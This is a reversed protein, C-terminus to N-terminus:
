KTRKKRKGGYLKAQDEHLGIAYKTATEPTTFKGLHEGTKRYHQIAERARVVRKGVVTPVLIEKGDENFSMSRVTSISGDKNRVVPRKTLDINGRELRGQPLKGPPRHTDRAPPTRPM